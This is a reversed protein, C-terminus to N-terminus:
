QKANIKELLAQQSKLAEYLRQLDGFRRTVNDLEVEYADDMELSSPVPVQM